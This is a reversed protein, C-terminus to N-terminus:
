TVGAEQLCRRDRFPGLYGSPSQGKESSRLAPPTSPMRWRRMRPSGELLAAPFVLLSPSRGPENHLTDFGDQSAPSWVIFGRGVAEDSGPLGKM